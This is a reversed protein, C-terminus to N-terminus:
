LGSQRPLDFVFFALLLPRRSGGVRSAGAAVDLRQSRLHLPQVRLDFSQPLSLFEFVLLPPQPPNFPPTACGCLPLWNPLSAHPRAILCAMKDPFTSSSFRFRSRAVGGGVAARARRLM